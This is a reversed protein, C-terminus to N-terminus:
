MKFNDCNWDLYAVLENRLDDDKFKLYFLKIWSMTAGIQSHHNIKIISEQIQEFVDKKYLNFQKKNM